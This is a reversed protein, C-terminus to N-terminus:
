QNALVQAGGPLWILFAALAAHALDHSVKAAGMVRSLRWITLPPVAGSARRAAPLPLGKDTRM